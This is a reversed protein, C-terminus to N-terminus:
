NLKLMDVCYNLREIVMKKQEHNLNKTMQMAFNIAAIVDLASTMINEGSEIDPM